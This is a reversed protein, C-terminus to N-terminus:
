IKFEDVVIYKDGLEKINLVDFVDNYIFKTNVITDLEAFFHRINSEPIYKLLYTGSEVVMRIKKYKFAKLAEIYKYFFSKAIDCNKFYIVDNSIYASKGDKYLVDYHVKLWLGLLTKKEIHYQPKDNKVDYTYVIRYNNKIKM